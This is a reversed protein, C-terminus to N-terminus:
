YITHHLVMWVLALAAAVFLMLWFAHNDHNDRERMRIGVPRKDERPLPDKRMLLLNVQLRMGNQGREDKRLERMPM